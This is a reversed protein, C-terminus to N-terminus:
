FDIKETREKEYVTEYHYGGNYTNPVRVRKKDRYKECYPANVLFNFLMEASKEFCEKAVNIEFFKDNWMFEKSDLVSSYVDKSILGNNIPTKTYYFDFFPNDNLNVSYYDGNYTFSLWYSGDVKVPDNPIKQFDANEKKIGDIVKERSERYKLPDREIAKEIREIRENNARIFGMISRNVIFGGRQPKLSGGHKTVVHRLENIILTANYEWTNPYLTQNEQTFFM